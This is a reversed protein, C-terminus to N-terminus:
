GQGRAHGEGTLWVCSDRVAQLMDTGCRDLEVIVWDVDSAALIAPWDMVGSGVAVMDAAPDDAPGDKIHLVQVRKGLTNLM